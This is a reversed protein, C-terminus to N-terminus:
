GAGAGGGGFGTTVGDCDIIVTLRPPGNGGIAGMIGGPPPTMTTGRGGTM